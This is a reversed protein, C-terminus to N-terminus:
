RLGRTFKSLLRAQYPKERENLGRAGNCVTRTSDRSSAPKRACQRHHGTAYASFIASATALGRTLWCGTARQDTCHHGQHGGTALKCTAHPLFARTSALNGVTVTKTERPRSAVSFLALLKDHKRRARSLGFHLYVCLSLM